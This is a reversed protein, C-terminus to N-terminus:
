NENFENAEEGQLNIDKYLENRGEGHLISNNFWREGRSRTLESSCSGSLVDLPSVAHYHSPETMKGALEWINTNSNYSLIEDFHNSTGTYSYGGTNVIFYFYPYNLKLDFLNGFIYVVNDATAAPFYGRPSPLSSVYSWTSHVYIETTSLYNSTDKGATVLLTQLM